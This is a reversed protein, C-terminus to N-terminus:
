YFGIQKFEKVVTRFEKTKFGNKSYAYETIAISNDGHCRRDEFDMLALSYAGHKVKNGKASSVEYETKYIKM